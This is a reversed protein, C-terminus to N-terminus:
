SFSRHCQRHVGFASGHVRFRILFASRLVPCQFIFVFLGAMARGLAKRAKALGRRLACHALARLRPVSFTLLTFYWIKTNTNKRVAAYHQRERIGPWPPRPCAFTLLMGIASRFPGRRALKRM